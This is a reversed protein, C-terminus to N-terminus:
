AALAYIRQMVDSKGQVKQLEAELREFLCIYKDGEKRTKIAQAVYRMAKRLDEANYDITNVIEFLENNELSCILVCGPKTLILSFEVSDSRATM